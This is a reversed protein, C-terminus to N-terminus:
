EDTIYKIYDLSLNKNIRISIIDKGNYKLNNIVKIHPNTTGVINNIYKTIKKYSYGKNRVVKKLQKQEQDYKKDNYKGQEKYSLKNHAKMEEEKAKNLSTITKTPKGARKVIPKESPKATKKINQNKESM